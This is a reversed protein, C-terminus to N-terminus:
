RSSPSSGLSFGQEQGAVPVSVEVDGRQPELRSAAAGAWSPCLPHFPLGPLIHHIFPCLLNSHPCRDDPPM